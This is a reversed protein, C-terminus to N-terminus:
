NGNTNWTVSNEDENLIEGSNENWGYQITWVAVIELLQKIKATNKAIM